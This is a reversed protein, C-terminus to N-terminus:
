CLECGRLALISNREPTMAISLAGTLTCVNPNHSGCLKAHALNSSIIQQDHLHQPQNGGVEVSLSPEPVWTKKGRKGVNVLRGTSILLM